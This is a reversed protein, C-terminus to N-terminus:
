ACTRACATPWPAVERPPFLLQEPEFTVQLQQPQQPQQQWLQQQETQLQLQQPQQTQQQWPQQQEAPLQLQQLQQPQQGAQSPLQQPQTRGPVLALTIIGALARVDQALSALAAAVADNPTDSNTENATESADRVRESLVQQTTDTGKTAAPHEHGEDEASRASVREPEM